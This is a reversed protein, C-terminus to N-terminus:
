QVAMNEKCTRFAHLGLDSEGQGGGGWRRSPCLKKKSGTCNWKQKNTQENKKPKTEKNNYLGFIKVEGGARPELYFGQFITWKPRTARGPGVLHVGGGPSVKRAL